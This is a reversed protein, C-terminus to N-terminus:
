DKWYKDVLSCDFENIRELEADNIKGDDSLCEARIALEKMADETFGIYKEKGEFNCVNALRENVARILVKTNSKTLFLSIALKLLKDKMETKM